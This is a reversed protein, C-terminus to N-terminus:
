GKQFYNINIIKILGIFFYRGHYPLLKLATFINIKKSRWYFFNLLWYKRQQKSFLHKHKKYVQWYGSFKNHSMTISEHGLYIVQLAEKLIKATKGNNLLRIWMDYDQAAKLKTDFLGAELFKTKTSLIQNGVLNAYLLDNQTLYMKSTLKKHFRKGHKDLFHESTVFAFKEDYAHVMREVRKPLMEDDDDLGTIFYGNASKIAQNRAVNAGSNKELRIYKLSTHEKLMGQMYHETDDTSADDVVIIEIEKYTQALTSQIARHLYQRRNYTTIYVTVLAKSM